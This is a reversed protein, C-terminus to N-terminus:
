AAMREDLDFRRLRFITAETGVRQLVLPAGQHMWPMDLQQKAMQEPSRRWREWRRDSLVRGAFLALMGVSFSMALFIVSGWIMGPSLTITLTM